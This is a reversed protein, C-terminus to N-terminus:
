PDTFRWVGRTNRKQQNGLDVRNTGECERAKTIVKRVTPESVSAEGGGKNQSLTM